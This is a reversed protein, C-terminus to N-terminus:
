LKILSDVWIELWSLSYHDLQIRHNQGVFCRLTFYKKWEFLVNMTLYCGIGSWNERTPCPLGPILSLLIHWEWRQSYNAVIMWIHNNIGIYVPHDQYHIWHYYSMLVCNCSLVVCSVMVFLIIRIYIYNNYIM